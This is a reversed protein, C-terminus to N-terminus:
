RCIHRRKLVVEVKRHPLRPIVLEFYEAVGTFVCGHTPEVAHPSNHPNRNRFRETTGGLVESFQSSCQLRVVLAVRNLTSRITRGTLDIVIVWDRAAEDCRQNFETVDRGLIKMRVKAEILIEVEFRDSEVRNDTSHLAFEPDRHRIRLDGRAPAIPIEFSEGAATM